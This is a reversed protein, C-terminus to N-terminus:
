DGLKEPLRQSVGENFSFTLGCRKCCFKGDKWQVPNEHEAQFIIERRGFQNMFDKKLAVSKLETYEAKCGPCNM